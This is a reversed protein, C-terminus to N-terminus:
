YYKNLSMLEILVHKLSSLKLIVLLKLTKNVWILCM